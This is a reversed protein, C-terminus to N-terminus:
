SRRNRQRPRKLYRELSDFQAGWFRRNQLIWDAANKLPAEVLRCRRVRGEKRRVLLGASELVGLHKSIAPLSTRFPAALESVSCEGAALRSLIARRTPDSLAAFVDDLSSVTM